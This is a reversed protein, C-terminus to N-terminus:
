AFCYDTTSSNTETNAAVANQDTAAQQDDEPFVYWSGYDNIGAVFQPASDFMFDSQRLDAVPVGQLLISGDPAGDHNVDWSILAGNDTDTVTLDQTNIGEPAIHDFAGQALGTAQFDLAVDNGSDPMVIFADAGPGGVLTDDGLGGDIMGHGPGEDLYDNGAGGMLNDNQDGGVLSDHGDGGMLRDEGAGGQLTDNGPGGTLDDGMLGGSLSDDGGQGFFHNSTQDGGKLMDAGDGGVRIWQDDFRLSFQDAADHQNPPSGAHDTTATIDPGDTSPAPREATPGGPPRAGPPLDPNDTFMFDDQALDAKHVGELLVSGGEWSVKVGDPGDAFSLDAWRLGVLALHDFMGPGATFDKIIDDGTGRTVVFADPGSGGVLTDNGPGGNLDGHGAGEDLFDNGPGGMVADDQPGGFLSDNGDAGMLLDTGDHGVLLDNGGQGELADAQPGGAIQDDGDRGWLHNQADESGVLVDAGQTGVALHHTDPGSGFDYASGAALSDDSM